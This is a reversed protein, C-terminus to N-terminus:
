RVHVGVAQANNFTGTVSSHSFVVITYDGPALTTFLHFGSPTFRSAGFFNAVDPRQDGITAVGLWIPNNPASAPYAYIHLTDVGTNSTAGLDLSWGAVLINPGNITQNQAPLDVWMKPNSAPAVVTAEILKPIGWSGDVTSHAYVVLTYSGAPLNGLLGWGSNTFQSGIFAGVDPRPHGMSAIGALLTPGGTKSYAWCVVVDIGTGSTAGLDAAWGSILFGSTPVVANNSPTDITWMPRSGPPPPPPPPPPPATTGGGTASSQVFQGYVATFVSSTVALYRGRSSDDILRPSYNGDNAAPNSRLPRVDPTNTMIFGNDYPTGDPNIPVGADEWNQPASGYTVMLFDGSKSNYKLDLADYAFFRSSMLHVPVAVALDSGRLTVGYTAAATTTRHYWAVVYQQTATNYSVAPVYAALTQTLEVAPGLVAGSGAKIRQVGIFAYNKAGAYAVLFEDTHPNYTVAPDREWDPTGATITQSAQLVNGALGVRTFQVDNLTTYKGMWTVIFEHSATSYAVAPGMGWNTTLGPLVVEPTLELDGTLPTGSASLMRAHVRSFSSGYIEQWTVFYGGGGGNLDASFVVRPTQAVGGVARSANVTVAGIKAGNANLLQGEIFGNGQVVLYQDNITDHAIDPFMVPTTSGGINFTAGSRAAQALCPSPLVLSLVLVCSAAASRSNIM